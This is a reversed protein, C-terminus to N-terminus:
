ISIFIMGSVYWIAIFLACCPYGHTAFSGDKSFLISPNAFHAFKLPCFWAKPQHVPPTTKKHVGRLTLISFVHFRV